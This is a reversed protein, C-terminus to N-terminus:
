PRSFKAFRALDIERQQDGVQGSVCRKGFRVACQIGRLDHEPELPEGRRNRFTARETGTKSNVRMLAAARVEAMSGTQRICTSIVRAM